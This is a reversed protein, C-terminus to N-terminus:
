HTFGVARCLEDYSLTKSRSFNKEARQLAKHVQSTPQFERFLKLQLLAEYEKRPIVVLEGTRTLQRPITLTVPPNSM